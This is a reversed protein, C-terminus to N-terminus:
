SRAQHLLERMWWDDIDEVEFLYNKRIKKIVAQREPKNWWGLVDDHIRNLLSAAEECDYLIIGVSEMLRVSELAEERFSWTERDLLMIFPKNLYLAERWTTSLHDCIMLKCGMLAEAFSANRDIIDVVGYNPAVTNKGLFKLLPFAKEMKSFVHWGSDVYYEKVYLDDRTEKELASFFEMQRRIYGKKFIDEGRYEDYRPYMFLTTGIFLVYQDLAQMDRYRNFKYSPASLIKCKSSRPRVEKGSWSYFIDSLYEEQDLVGNIVEYDGGHQLSIIKVGRSQALFSFITERFPSLIGTMSFIVKLKQYKNLLSISKAHHYKYEELYIKPFTRGIVDAIIPSVTKLKRLAVTIKTRLESSRPVNIGIPPFCLQQIKGSSGIIWNISTDSSIDLCYYLVETEDRSFARYYYSIGRRLMHQPSETFVKKIRCCINQLFPKNRKTGEASEVIQEEVEVPAVQIGFYNKALYTYLWLHYDDEWLADTGGEFFDKELFEKKTYTHLIQDPYNKKLKEFQLLKVQIDYVIYLLWRFFLKEWYGRDECTRSHENVVQGICAAIEKICDQFAQDKVPLSSNCVEYRLSSREAEDLQECYVQNLFIMPSDHNWLERNITLPLFIKHDASFETIM